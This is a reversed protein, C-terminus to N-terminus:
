GEQVRGAARGWLRRYSCCAIQDEGAKDVLGQSGVLKGWWDQRIGKLNGTGTGPVSGGPKTTRRRQLELCPIWGWWKAEEPRGLVGRAEEELQLNRASRKLNSAPRAVQLPILPLTKSRSGGVYYFSYPL